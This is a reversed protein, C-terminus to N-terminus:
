PLVERGDADESTVLGYVRLWEWRSAGALLEKTSMIVKVCSILRKPKARVAMALGTGAATASGMGATTLLTRDGTTETTVPSPPMAPVTPPATPETGASTWALHM